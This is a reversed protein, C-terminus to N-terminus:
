RLVVWLMSCAGGLPRMLGFSSRDRGGMSCAGMILIGEVGSHMSHMSSNASSGMRPAAADGRAVRRAVSGVALAPLPMRVAASGRAIRLSM